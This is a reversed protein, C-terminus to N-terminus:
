SFDIRDNSLEISVTLTGVSQAEKSNVAKIWMKNNKFERTSTGVNFLKSIHM